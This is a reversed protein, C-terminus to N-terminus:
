LQTPFGLRPESILLRREPCGFTNWKQNKLCVKVVEPCDVFIIPNLGPPAGELDRVSTGTPRQSVLRVVGQNKTWFYAEGQLAAACAEAFTQPLAQQVWEQLEKDWLRAM